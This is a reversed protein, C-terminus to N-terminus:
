NFTGFPNVETRDIITNSVVEMEKNDGHSYLTADLLPDYDGISYTTGSLEGVLNAGRTFEGNVTHLHITTNSPFWDKVTAYTSGSSVIEDKWYAGSGSSLPLVLIYSSFDEIENIEEYDTNFKEHSYTFEEITMKYIYPNKNGLTYYMTDKNVYVIEFLRKFVPIYILDGERPKIRLESPVYKSFQKKAVVIDTTYNAQMGGFKSTFIGGALWGEAETVYMEIEYTREFLSSPDEGFVIDVSSVSDRLIYICDMGNIQISEILLDEVLAQENNFQDPVQNFYKNVPM